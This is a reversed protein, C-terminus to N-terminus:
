FICACLVKVSTSTWKGSYLHHTRSSLRGLFIALGEGTAFSSLTVTRCFRVLPVNQKSAFYGHTSQYKYAHVYRLRLSNQKAARARRVYMRSTRRSDLSTNTQRPAGLSGIISFPRLSAEYPAPVNWDNSLISLHLATKFFSFYKYTTLISCEYYYRLDSKHATHMEHTHKWAPSHLQTLRTERPFRAEVDM